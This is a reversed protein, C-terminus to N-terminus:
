ARQTPDPQKVRVNQTPCWGQLRFGNPRGAALPPLSSQGAGPLPRKISPTMPEPLALVQGSNSCSLMSPHSERQLGHAETEGLACEHTHHLMKFGLVGRAPDSNLTLTGRHERCVCGWGGLGVQERRVMDAQHGARSTHGPNWSTLQLHHGEKRSCNIWSGSHVEGGEGM